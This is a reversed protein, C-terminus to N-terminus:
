ARVNLLALADARAAPDDKLVGRVATTVTRSGPKQVGRMIMCLHEASAVVIVGKPQLHEELADAIQTTIREQMQLRRAFVEVLRAIKSIGVVRKDPVYGVHAEGHFPLM